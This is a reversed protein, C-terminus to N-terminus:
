LHGIRRMFNRIGFFYILYMVIAPIIWMSIFARLPSANAKREIQSFSVANRSLRNVLDPDDVRVAVYKAGATPAPQADEVRGGPYLIEEVKNLDADAGITIILRSESLLAQNVSGSEVLEIFQSYEIAQNSQSARDAFRDVFFVNILSIILFVVILINFINPGKPANDPIPNDNQKTEDKDITNNKLKM